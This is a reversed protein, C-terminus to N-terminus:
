VSLIKRLIASIEPSSVPMRHIGGRIWYLSDFDPPLMKVTMKEHDILEDSDGVIVHLNRWSKDDSYFYRATLELYGQCDLVGRLGVFPALAPNTLIATIDQFIQNVIRAFFGGLSNGVVYVGTQDNPINERILSLIDHANMDEYDITPSWIEHGPANEKLWAYMSNEGNSYLGHINIIM